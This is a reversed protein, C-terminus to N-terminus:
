NEVHEHVPAAVPQLARGTRAVRQSAKGSRRIIRKATGVIWKWHLAFHLATLLLTVDASASHLFRWTNGAAASLGLFPLISRSILIGSLMVTVMAVLLLVDVVYQLRSSHFVKKFFQITVKAVWDWHLLLHVLLTAALALSLWEHIAIGTLGPEFAILFGAFVAADLWFNTKASM